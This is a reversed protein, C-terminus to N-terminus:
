VIWDNEMRFVIFIFFMINEYLIPGSPLTFVLFIISYRRANNNSKVPNNIKNLYDKIKIVGDLILSNSHM